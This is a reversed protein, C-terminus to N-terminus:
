SAVRWRHPVVPREEPAVSLGYPTLAMVRCGEEREGTEVVLGSLRMRQLMKCVASNSQGVVERIAATSLPGEEALTYLTLRWKPSQIKYPM